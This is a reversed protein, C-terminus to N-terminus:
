HHATDHDNEERLGRWAAWTETWPKAEPGLRDMLKRVLELDEPTDVSWKPAQANGPWPVPVDPQLYLCPYNGRIWATVHERESALLVRVDAERLAEATFVETDLGDPYLSQPGVNAVYPVAYSRGDIRCDLFTEVVLSSLEPDLLPCDGTLRVVVDADEGDAAIAYSRLVDPHPGGYVEVGLDRYWARFQEVEDLPVTLVVVDVHRVQLARRLVHRLMTYPGITSIVKYPLRTSGLRAQVVVVVRM